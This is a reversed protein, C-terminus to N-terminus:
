LEAPASLNARTKRVALRGGLLAAPASVFITALQSWPSTDRQLMWSAIAATALMLAVVGAHSVPARPALRAALSGALAAFMAGYVIGFLAFGLGPWVEPPRGSVAFLAVASITFVLYGGIVAGISRLM